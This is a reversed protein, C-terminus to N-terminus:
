PTTRCSAASRPTSRSRCAPPSCRTATRSRKPSSIAASSRDPVPSTRWSSRSASSTPGTRARDDPVRHRHRRRRAVPVILRIPHSPFAEQAYSPMPVFLSLAFGTALLVSHLLPMAVPRPTPSAPLTHAAHHTVPCRRPTALSHSLALAYLGCARTGPLFGGQGCDEAHGDHGFPELYSPM